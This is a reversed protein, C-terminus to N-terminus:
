IIKWRQLVNSLRHSTQNYINNVHHKVKREMPRYKEKIIKPVFSENVKCNCNCNCNCYNYYYIIIIIIILWIIIYQQKM